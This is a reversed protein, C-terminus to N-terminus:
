LKGLYFMLTPIILCGMLTSKRVQKKECIVGLITSPILVIMGYFGSVGFVVVGILIIVATRLTRYNIGSIKQVMVESVFKFIVFSFFGAALAYVALMMATEKNIELIQSIAVLGGNRPKSIAYLSFISMVIDATNVAGISVFFEDDNKERRLKETVLSAQTPGIAPILGLLSSAAVGFLSSKIVDRKRLELGYIRHQKPIEETKIGSFLSSLGFLGSLMPTLVNNVGSNLCVYGLVGSMGLVLFAPVVNKEKLCLDVIIALLIFGVYRGIASHIIPMLFVIVPSIVVCIIIAYLCGLSALKLALRARGQLLYRKGPSSALVNSDDPSSLLISPIFDFFNHSISLGIIFCSVAAAPSTFGSSILASAILNIHLGPVIGTIMGALTGLFTGAIEKILM